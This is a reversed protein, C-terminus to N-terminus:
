WRDSLPASDFIEALRARTARTTGEPLALRPFFRAELIEWDPEREGRLVAAAVFHRGNWDVTRCDMQDALQQQLWEQLIQPRQSLLIKTISTTM